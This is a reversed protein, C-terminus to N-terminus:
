FQMGKLYKWRGGDRAFVSHERFSVDDKGAMLRAHFTVTTNDAALIELGVFRTNQSFADIDARWAAMDKGYHPSDPHTTAIIYETKGLAYASYRSRMLAEPSPAPKGEHYPRCCQKYTRGSFCPCLDTPKM